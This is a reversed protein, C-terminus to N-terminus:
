PNREFSCTSYCQRGANEVSEVQYEQSSQNHCYRPPHIPAYQISKWDLTDAPAAFFKLLFLGRRVATAAAMVGRRGM